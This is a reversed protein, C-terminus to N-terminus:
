GYHILSNINDYAFSLRDNLDKIKLLMKVRALIEGQDFPKSIFDDAGAEIGRIRDDKSRLATVMVIPINRFREEEKIMACVEFGNIEPMMVDLLILDIKQESIKELAIRGSEAKIVAYGRSVLLAELLKLNIPDDDVCLIKPQSVNM